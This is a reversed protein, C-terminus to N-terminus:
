QVTAPADMAKARIAHADTFCSCRTVANVGNVVVNVYTSGHCTECKEITLRAQQETRAPRTAQMAIAAHGLGLVAAGRRALVPSFTSIDPKRMRYVKRGREDVIPELNRGLKVTISELAEDLSAERAEDTNQEDLWWPRNLLVVFDYAALERDLDDARKIAWRSVRGDVDPAWATCWALGIRADLKEAHDSEIVRKLLAYMSEGYESPLILQYSVKKPKAPKM